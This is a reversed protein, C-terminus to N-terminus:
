VQKREVPLKSASSGDSIVKTVYRQGESIREVELGIVDVANQMQNLQQTQSQFMREFHERMSRMGMRWAFVGLLGLAVAEVAMFGAVDRMENRRSRGGFDMPPISIEPIRIVQTGQAGQGVGVGTGQGSSVAAYRATAAAIQDDLTLIQRDIRATRADIETIRAEIGPRADQTAVHRQEDLENRRRNLEKLQSRLETRQGSLGDLQASIQRRQLQQQETLQQMM